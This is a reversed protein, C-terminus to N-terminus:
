DLITIDNKEAVCPADDAPCMCKGNSCANSHFCQDHSDCKQGAVRRCESEGGNRRSISM